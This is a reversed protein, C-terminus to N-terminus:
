IACLIGTLNCSIARGTNGKKTSKQSLSTSGLLTSLRSVEKVATTSKSESVDRVTVERLIDCPMRLDSRTAEIQPQLRSLHVVSPQFARDILVKYTWASCCLLRHRCTTSLSTAPLLLGVESAANVTAWFRLRTRALSSEDDSSSIQGRSGCACGLLSGHCYAISAQSKQKLIEQVQRQLLDM